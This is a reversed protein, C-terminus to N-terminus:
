EGIVSVHCARCLPRVRRANRLVAGTMDKRARYGRSLRFTDRIPDEVAHFHTLRAWGCPKPVPPTCVCASGRGFRPPHVRIVRSGHPGSGRCVPADVMGNV